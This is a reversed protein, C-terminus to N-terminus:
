HLLLLATLNRSLSLSVLGIRDFAKCIHCKTETIHFSIIKIHKRENRRYFVPLPFHLVTRWSGGQLLKECSMKNCFICCNTLVGRFMENETRSILHTESSGVSGVWRTTGWKFHWWLKIYPMVPISFSYPAYRGKPIYHIIRLCLRLLASMRKTETM